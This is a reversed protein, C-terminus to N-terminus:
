QQFNIYYLKGLGQLVCRQLQIHQKRAHKTALACSPLLMPKLALASVAASVTVPGMVQTTNSTGSRELKPSSIASLSTGAIAVYRTDCRTAPPYAPVPASSPAPAPASSLAPASSPGPVSVSMPQRQCQCQRQCLSASTSASTSASARQQMLLVASTTISVDAVHRSRKPMPLQKLAISSTNRQWLISKKKSSCHAGRARACATSTQTGSTVSIIHWFSDKQLHSRSDYTCLNKKSGERSITPASIKKRFRRM